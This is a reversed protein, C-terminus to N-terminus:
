RGCREDPPSHERDVASVWDRRDLHCPLPSACLVDLEGLRTVAHEEPLALEWAEWRRLMSTSRILLPGALQKSRQRLWLSALDEIEVSPTPWPHRNEIHM